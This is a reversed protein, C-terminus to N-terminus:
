VDEGRYIEPGDEHMHFEKKIEKLCNTCLLYAGRHEYKHFLDWLEKPPIYQESVLTAIQTRKNKLRRCRHCNFGIEFIEDM